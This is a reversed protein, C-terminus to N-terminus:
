ASYTYLVLGLSGSGKMVPNLGYAFVLLKPLTMTRSRGSLASFFLFGGLLSSFFFARSLKRELDFNEQALIKLEALKLKRKTLNEM